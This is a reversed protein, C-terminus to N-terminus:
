ASQASPPRVRAILPVALGWALALAAFTVAKPEPLTAAGLREAGMYSIPAFVASAVGAVSPRARMWRLSADLELGFLAWLAIIWVPAISAGLPEPASYVVWGLAAWLTDLVVGVAVSMMVLRARLRHTEASRLRVALAGLCWLPGLWAMGAAAGGVCAFWGLQFAVFDVFWARMSVEAYVV